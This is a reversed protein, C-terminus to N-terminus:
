ASPTPISFLVVSAQVVRGGRRRRAAMGEGGLYNTWGLSFERQVKKKQKKVEVGTRNKRRLDVNDSTNVPKPFTRSSVQVIQADGTDVLLVVPTSVEPELPLVQAGPDALKVNGIAGRTQRQVQSESSYGVVRVHSRSMDLM